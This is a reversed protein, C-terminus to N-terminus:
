AHKPEYVPAVDKGLLISASPWRAIVWRAAAYYLAQVFAIIVTIIWAQGDGDLPVAYANVIVVFVAGVVTPIGTRVISAWLDSVNAYSPQSPIGLLIGFAPLVRELLRAVLYYVNQTLAVAFAILAVEFEGHLDVAFTALLWALLAGIAYPVYTRIYALAKDNPTM